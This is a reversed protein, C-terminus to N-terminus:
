SNVSFPEDVHTQGPLVLWLLPQSTFKLISIVFVMEAMVLMLDRWFYRNDSSIARLYGVFARNM